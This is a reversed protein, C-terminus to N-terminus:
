RLPAYGEVVGSLRRLMRHLAPMVRSESPLDVRVSQDEVRQFVHKLADVYRRYYVAGRKGVDYGEYLRVTKTSLIRLGHFHYFVPRLSAERQEFYRANWPALTKEVQRLVHVEEAFRVPWDDLYRQDGFKGDEVRNFCWELCRDQWWRMVTQAGATRSVTLFQVCFRGSTASQDYEPDYAHETILVSKRADTLEDLLIWPSDFFFVDADVYTVQQVGPDRDFVVQPAFPTLTWCYEGLTRGQRAKLLAESEVDRLPILSVHPLALQRLQQEVLDDMCVVWLQFPKAHELLSAHLCMGMPLFQSDFLTVFHTEANDSKM